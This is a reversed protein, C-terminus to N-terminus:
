VDLREANRARGGLEVSLRQYLWVPRSTRLWLVRDFTM